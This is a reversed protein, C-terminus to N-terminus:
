FIRWISVVKKLTLKNRTNTAMNYFMREYIDIAVKKSKKKIM